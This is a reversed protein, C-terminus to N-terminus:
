NGLVNKEGGSTWRLRGPLVKGREQDLTKKGGGVAPNSRFCRERGEVETPNRRVRLV